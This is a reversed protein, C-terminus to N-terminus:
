NLKKYLDKYLITRKALLPGIVTKRSSIYSPNESNTIEFNLENRSQLYYYYYYYYYKNVAFPNIGPPLPVHVLLQWIPVEAV